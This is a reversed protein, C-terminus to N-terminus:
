LRYVSIASDDFVQTHQPQVITPLVHV